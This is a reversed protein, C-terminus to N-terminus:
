KAKEDFIVSVMEGNIHAFVKTGFGYDTKIRIMEAYDVSPERKYEGDFFDVTFLTRESLDAISVVKNM